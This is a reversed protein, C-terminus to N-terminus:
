WGQYKRSNQDDDHVHHPGHALSEAMRSGSQRSTRFERKGNDTGNEGNCITGPGAVPVAVATVAAALPRAGALVALAGRPLVPIM